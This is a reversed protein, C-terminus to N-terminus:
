GLVQSVYAPALTFMMFMVLVALGVEYFSLMLVPSSGLEKAGEKLDLAVQHFPHHHQKPPGAEPDPLPTRAFSILAGAVLFLVSAVWYPAYIEVRSVVPALVGGLVLTVVMTALVMSNATILAERSVVSPIGAAEAPSFLQGVAAFAFTIVLLHVYDHRLAPVLSALPILLVLAARVATTVIMIRKRDHRDAFVGALPAIAVAPVTYALLTIAVPTSGHSLRYALIILSFMLFKDALQAAVQAYWILQFDRQALLHRFGTKEEQPTVEVKPPKGNGPQDRPAMGPLGQTRQPGESRPVAMRSM